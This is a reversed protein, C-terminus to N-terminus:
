RGAGAVHQEEKLWHAFGTLNMGITGHDAPLLIIWPWRDQRVALVPTRPPCCRDAQETTQQWWQSIKAPTILKTRKIEIALTAIRGALATQEPTPCTDDPPTTLIDYGGSRTQDLNRRLWDIGILQGLDTCFQREGTAGKTRNNM